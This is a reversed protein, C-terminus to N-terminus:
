KHRTWDIRLFRQRPIYRHVRARLFYALEIMAEDSVVRERRADSLFQIIAAACDTDPEAEARKFSKMAYKATRPPMRRM